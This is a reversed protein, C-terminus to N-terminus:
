HQILMHLHLMCMRRGIPLAGMEDAHVATAPLSLLEAYVYEDM